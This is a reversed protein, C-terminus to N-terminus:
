SQEEVLGRDPGTAGGPENTAPAPEVLVERVDPIEALVREQVLHAVEHARALTM